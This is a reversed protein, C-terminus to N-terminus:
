RKDVWILGIFKADNFGECDNQAGDIGGLSCLIECNSSIVSSQGDPFNQFNLVYVYDDKYLYKEISAHPTQKNNNELFNDIYSQICEPYHMKNNNHNCSFFLLAIGVGVIKKLM